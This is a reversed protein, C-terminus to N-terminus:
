ERIKLEKGRTNQAGKEWAAAPSHSTQLFPKEPKQSSQLQEQCFTNGLISGNSKSLNTSRQNSINKHCELPQLLLLSLNWWSHIAQNTIPINWKEPSFNDAKRWESEESLNQPNNSRKSVMFIAEPLQLNEKGGTYYFRSLAIGSSYLFYVQLTLHWGVKYKGLVMMIPKYNWIYFGQYKILLGADSQSSSLRTSIKLLNM